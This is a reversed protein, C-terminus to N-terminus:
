YGKLFRPCECLFVPGIAASLLPARLEPGRSLSSILLTQVREKLKETMGGRERGREGRYADTERPVLLHRIRNRGASTRKVVTQTKAGSSSM